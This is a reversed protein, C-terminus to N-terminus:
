MILTSHTKKIAKYMISFTSHKVMRDHMSIASMQTM